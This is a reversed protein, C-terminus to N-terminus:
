FGDTSNAMQYKVQMAEHAQHALSFQHRSVMEVQYVVSSEDALFIESSGPTFNKISKKVVQVYSLFDM